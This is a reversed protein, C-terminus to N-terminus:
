LGYRRPPKQNKVRELERELADSWEEMQRTPTLGAAEARRFLYEVLFVEGAHSGFHSHRVFARAIPSLPEARADEDGFVGVYLGRERMRREFDQHWSTRRLDATSMVFATRRFDMMMTVFRLAQSADPLSALYKDWTAQVIKWADGGDLETWILAYGSIEVIDALVDASITLQTDQPFEKLETGVRAYAKLAAPFYSSFLSQFLPQKARALALYSERALTVYAYGFLDPSEGSPATSPLTQASKALSQLLRDGMHEVRKAMSEADFTPWAQLATANETPSLAQRARAVRDIHFRFKDCWELGVQAVLAATLAHKQEVLDAAEAPYVTEAEDVLVRVLETIAQAYGGGVAHEVFWEPTLLHGEVAREFVL